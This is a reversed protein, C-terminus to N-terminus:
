RVARRRELARRVDALRGGAHISYCRSGRCLQRIRLRYLDELRRARKPSLM